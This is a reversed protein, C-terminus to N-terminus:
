GAGNVGKVTIDFILTAGAPIDPPAGRDGFAKEPPVVVTLHGGTGVKQLGIAIAPIMAGVRVTRAGHNDFVTGDPLHGSLQLIAMDTTRLRPTKGKDAILYLAGADTVVGKQKRFNARFTTGRALEDARAKLVRTAFDANFNQLAQRVEDDSLRLTHRGYSDELGVLVLDPNLDMGVKQQLELSQLLERGLAVGNAYARRNEETTLTLGEAPTSPSNNRTSAQITPESPTPSVTSVASTTGSPGASLSSPSVPSPSLTSPTGGGGQYVTKQELLAQLLTRQQALESRIQLLERALNSDLQSSAPTDPTIGTSAPSPTGTDVLGPVSLHAPPVNTTSAHLDQITGEATAVGPLPPPLDTAAWSHSPISASPALLFILLINIHSRWKISIM